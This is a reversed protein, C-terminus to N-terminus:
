RLIERCGLLLMDHLEIQRQHTLEDTEFCPSFSVNNGVLYYDEWDESLKKIGYKEPQHFAPSGPLPVFASLLWRDPRAEYLGDLNEKITEENEGPYNVMLYTKARMDFRQTMKIAAINKERTAPKKMERLMTPSFTEVGYSIDTCGAERAAKAVEETIFGVSMNLRFTIKLGKLAKLLVALRKLDVGINDDGFVIHDIGSDKARKVEALVREISHLRFTKGMIMSCFTCKYVCGRSTYITLARDGGPRYKTIDVLDIAPMPLSDIDNISEAEYFRGYIGEVIEDLIRLFVLEGEGRVVIDCPIDELVVDPVYTPHIGGVITISKPSILDCIEKVIFHNPTVLQIGIVDADIKSAEKKWDIKGGLEIVSVSHQPRWQRIASAIYLLGMPPYAIDNALYPSPPMVLVIKLSKSRVKKRRSSEITKAPSHSAVVKYDKPDIVKLRDM